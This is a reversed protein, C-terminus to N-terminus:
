LNAGAIAALVADAYKPGIGSITLLDDQTMSKLDAETKRNAMIKKSLANARPPKCNAAIIADRILFRLRTSSAQPLPVEVADGATDDANDDAPAGAITSSGSELEQIRALLEGNQAELAFKSEILREHQERLDRLEALANSLETKVADLEALRRPTAEKVTTVIEDQVPLYESWGAKKAIADHFIEIAGTEGNVLYRQGLLFRHERGMVTRTISSSSPKDTNPM